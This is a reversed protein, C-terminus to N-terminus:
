AWSWCVCRRIPSRVVAPAQSNKSRSPSAAASRRSTSVSTRPTSSASPRNTGSIVTREIAGTCGGIQSGAAGRQNLEGLDAGACFGTTKGSTIVAGKIKDDSKLTEVLQILERMVSGTITNMSRGPVDFTILAIGDSDASLFKAGLADEITYILRRLRTRGQVEDADPWLLAALHSRPVPGPNFGLYAMVKQQLANIHAAPDSWDLDDTIVLMANGTEPEVGVADVADVDSIAM